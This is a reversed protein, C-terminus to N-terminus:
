CKGKPWLIREKKARRSIFATIIFGDRKSTERYVVNLYKRKGLNAVAVLAGAYGQSVYTPNEIAGLVHDYYATMYPKNAVIHTWREEPLRIPVRNVSIVVDM